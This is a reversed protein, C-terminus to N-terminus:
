SNLLQENTFRPKVIEKWENRSLSLNWPCVSRMWKFTPDIHNPNGPDIRTYELVQCNNIKDLPDNRRELDEYQKVTMGEMVFRVAWLLNGHAVCIATKEPFERHLRFLMGRRARDELQAMSEGGPPIWWFGDRKKLAMETAYRANREENTLGDLYGYNQECLDTKQVWVENSEAAPLALKSATQLARIFPSVFYGDFFGHQINNRIWDGAAMAQAIGNATLVMARNPKNRFAETYGSTDGRKAANLVLNAESEGHRVCVFRYPRIEAM